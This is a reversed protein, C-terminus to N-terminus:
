EGYDASAIRFQIICKIFPESKDTEIQLDIEICLYSEAPNENPRLDTLPRCLDITISNDPCYNWFCIIVNEIETMDVISVPLVLPLILLQVVSEIVKSSANVNRLIAVIM